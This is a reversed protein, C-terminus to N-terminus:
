VHAGRSRTGNGPGQRDESARRPPFCCGDCGHVGMTRDGIRVFYALSDPDPHGVGHSCIREILYRKDSRIDTRWSLMHHRSPNHVVCYEGACQRSSHTKVRMGSSDVFSDRPDSKSVPYEGVSTIGLKDLMAQDEAFFIDGRGFIGINQLLQGFRWDPNRKWEMELHKIIPTIREPDRM